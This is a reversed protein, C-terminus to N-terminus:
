GTGDDQMEVPEPFVDSSSRKHSSSNEHAGSGRSGVRETQRLGGIIERSTQGSEASGDSSSHHWSGFIAATWSQRSSARRLRGSSFNEERVVKFPNELAKLVHRISPRRSAKPNLCSKAVIAVAWVEELLDEDIILSQDIIKIVLEKDYINISPLNADMWQKADAENLASIGLRGTVLELLVKGFCYVDYACTISSSGSHRKRSTQPTRLLRAFMNHNINAGVDCAESLSGLRVEYKDDLLISSAQIDRHVISPICEHHLYSLAEAAGIAIKLRTIWDLSQLEDEENEDENTRRYFASSLDGNLMYKYVLYKENEDELCHGVLPVVRAHAMTGKSFFDLESAFSEKTTVGRLDVKKIIVYDGGELKGRFLDGSHGNKILNESSFDRTAVLLQEYTFPQGLGSLDVPAELVHDARPNSRRHVESRISCAKSLLLILAVLIVIFGLGGFVGIMVYTLVRKRTKPFRVLPPEFPVSSDNGFFIGRDSYFKLCADPNRQGPVSTFCNDSFIVTTGTKNPASGEFYNSSVDILGLKEFGVNLNGYFLNNSFNFVANTVNFSGIPNRFDGTLNNSSVDLYELRSMSWLSIPLVGVFNNSSLVLYDLLPLKRFLSDLLSGEMRNNGIMLKELNKLGGLEDPLSGFLSNFGLDLEILKSLNGLQPPIFESLSNNSLNLFELNSLSGFELPIGGSLYNSSFDLKTLNSLAAVEKPIQGTFLNQSLDLVSLSSLNELATPINGAISNNSLNLSGLRSLRGISSPLSGYISCSSLDLVELNTLREFLWSPISGPLSFGTSNFVSLFPFNSLSDVAFRPNLNGLHTRRLGSLNIGTVRGTKCQIGTWNSCPNAKKHWDKARIGLSSRLDFLARWETQSSLRPVPQAAAAAAAASSNLFLFTLLIFLKLHAEM